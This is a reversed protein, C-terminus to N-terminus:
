QSELEHLVLVSCPCFASFHFGKRGGQLGGTGAIRKRECSDKSFEETEKWAWNGGLGEQRM